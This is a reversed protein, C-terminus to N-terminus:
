GLSPLLTAASNGKYGCFSFAHGFDTGEMPIGMRKGEPQFSLAEM